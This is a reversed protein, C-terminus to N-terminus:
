NLPWTTIHLSLRMSRGHILMMVGISPLGCMGSQWEVTDYKQHFATVSDPESRRPEVPPGSSEEQSEERPVDAAEQTEELPIWGHSFSWAGSLTFWVERM